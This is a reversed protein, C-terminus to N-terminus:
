DNSQTGGWLSVPNGNKLAELAEGLKSIIEASM